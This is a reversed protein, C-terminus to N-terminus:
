RRPVGAQAPGGADLTGTSLAWVLPTVGLSWILSGLVDTPFHVGDILVTACISAVAVVALVTVWRTLVPTGWRAAALVATVALATVFATHGSPFSSDAQVPLMPHPLLSADPRPRDLVFKYAVVPLWAVAVTLGFTLGRSFRRTLAWVLASLLAAVVVAGLPELTAYIGNTLAGIAGVHLSNAAKTFSLDAASHAMTVGLATVLAVALIARLVVGGRPHPVTLSVASM